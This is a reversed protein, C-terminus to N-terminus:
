GVVRSRTRVFSGSAAMVAEQVRRGAMSVEVHTTLVERRVADERATAKPCAAVGSKSAQLVRYEKNPPIVYFTESTRATVHMFTYLVTCYQLICTREQM